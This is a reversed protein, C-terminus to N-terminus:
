PTSEEGTSNSSQKSSETSSYSARLLDLLRFVPDRERTRLAGREYERRYYAHDVRGNLKRPYVALLAIETPLASSDLRHLLQERVKAARSPALEDALELPEPGTFLLLSVHGTDGSAAIVTHDIVFSLTEIVVRVEEEPYPRGQRSPHYTGCYLLGGDQPSFLFGSGAPFPSWVGLQGSAAADNQAGPKSLVYPLGPAVQLYRSCLGQRTPSFLLCGGASADYLFGACAVQSLSLREVFDDWRLSSPSLAEFLCRQVSTMQRPTRRHTQGVAADRFAPSVLVVDIPLTDSEDSHNLLIDETSAHLYTAGYFLTCLLLMPLYQLPDSEPAALVSGPFLALPLWGDRLTQRFVQAASLITPSCDEGCISFPTFLALASGEPAYSFSGNEISLSVTQAPLEEVLLCRERFTALLTEYRASASIKADPLAAIRRALFDPGSPPLVTVSLGMRLGSLLAILLEPELRSVICMSDGPQIGLAAWKQCRESCALHLESYTLRALRYGPTVQNRRSWRAGAKDTAFTRYVLAPLSGSTPLHRLLLDHYLDIGSQQKSKLPAYGLSEYQSQLDSFFAEPDDRTKELWMLDRFVGDGPRLFDQRDIHWSATM